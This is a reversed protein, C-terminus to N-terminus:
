SSSVCEAAIVDDAGSNCNGQAAVLPVLPSCMPPCYASRSKFPLDLKSDLHIIKSLITHTQVARCYETVFSHVHGLAAGRHPHKIIEWSGLSARYECNSAACKLCLRCNTLVWLVTSATRSIHDFWAERIETWMKLHQGQWAYGSCWPVAVYLM